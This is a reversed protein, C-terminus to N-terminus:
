STNRFVSLWQRHLQALASVPDWSLCLLQNISLYLTVDDETSNWKTPSSLILNEILLM